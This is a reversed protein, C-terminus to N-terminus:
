SSWLKGFRAMAAKWLWEPLPNFQSGTAETGCDSCFSLCTRISTTALHNTACAKSSVFLPMFHVWISFPFHEWPNLHLLTHSLSFMYSHVFRGKKQWKISAETTMMNKKMKGVKVANWPWKKGLWQATTIAHAMKLCLLFRWSFHM